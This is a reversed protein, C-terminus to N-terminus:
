GRASGRWGGRSTRERRRLLADLWETALETLEPDVRDLRALRDALGWMPDDPDALDTAAASVLAEITADDLPAAAEEGPGDPRPTAADVARLAAALISATDRGLRDARIAITAQRAFAAAVDLDRLDFSGGRRDLVELVGVIGRADALPVALLTGPQYGTADAVTRDFRPDAQVDAIAIPQGSTFAYGAIGAAADISLGVVEGAAPGAAARFVLRDTAPDHVAVSAAQADLALAATEVVSVLWPDTASPDVRGAAAVRRALARLAVVADDVPEAPPETM